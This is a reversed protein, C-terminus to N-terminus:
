PDLEAFCREVTFEDYAVMPVRPPTPFPEEADFFCADDCFDPETTKWTDYDM